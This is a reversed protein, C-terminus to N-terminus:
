QNEDIEFKRLYEIHWFYKAQIKRSHRKAQYIMQGYNHYTRRGIEKDDEDYFSIKIAEKM